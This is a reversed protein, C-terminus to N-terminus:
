VDITEFTKVERSELYNLAHNIVRTQFHETAKHDNYGSEDTYQEYLFFTGPADPSVQAQYYLNKPEDRSLPTMERIVDAITQEEGDKAIWTAAVVFAM